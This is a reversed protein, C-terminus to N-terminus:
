AASNGPSASKRPAVLQLVFHQIDNEPPKCASMISHRACMLVLHHPVAAASVELLRKLVNIAFAYHRDASYSEVVVLQYAERYSIGHVCRCAM